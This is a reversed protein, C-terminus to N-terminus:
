SILVLVMPAAPTFSSVYKSPNCGEGVFWNESSQFSCPYWGWIKPAADSIRGSDFMVIFIKFFSINDLNYLPKEPVILSISTIWILCLM